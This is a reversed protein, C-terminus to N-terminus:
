YLRLVTWDFFIKGTKIEKKEFKVIKSLIKHTERVAQGTISRNLPWLEKIIKKLSLQDIKM